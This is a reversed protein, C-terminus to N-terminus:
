SWRPFEVSSSNRSLNLEEKQYEFTLAYPFTVKMPKNRTTTVHSRSVACQPSYDKNFVSKRMIAKSVSVSTGDTCCNISAMKSSSPARHRFGHWKKKRSRLMRNSDVAMLVEKLPLWKPGSSYPPHHQHSGTGHFIQSVWAVLKSSVVNIIIALCHLPMQVTCQSMKGILKKELYGNPLYFVLWEDFRWSPWPLAM